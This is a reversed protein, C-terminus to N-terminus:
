PIAIFIPIMPLRATDASRQGPLKNRGSVLDADGIAKAHFSNRQERGRDAGPRGTNGFRGFWATTTIATGHLLTGATAIGRRAAIWGRGSVADITM